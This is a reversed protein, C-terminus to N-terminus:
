LSTYYDVLLPAIQKRSMALNGQEYACLVVGDISCQTSTLEIPSLKLADNSTLYATLSKMREASRSICLIERRPSPKLVFTMIVLLDNDKSFFETVEENLDKKSLFSTLPQLVAAIGFAFTTTSATIGKFEKYDLRIADKATLSEWFLPDLKANSMLYFLRDRDISPYRSSLATLAALDRATGKGAIPDMNISDVAIVAVLLIAIDESLADTNSSDLYREAVLTCTSAVEAKGTEMNFAIERGGATRCSDVYKGEDKHHDLIEKIIAAQEQEEISKMGLRMSLDNSVINHDMLIVDTPMSTYEDMSILDQLDIDAEQLLLSVDRRLYMQDRNVAVVPVIPAHLSTCTGMNIQWQRLYAYTLASIISDADAAENGIILSHNLEITTRKHKILGQLFSKLPKAM